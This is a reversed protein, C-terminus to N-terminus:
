KGLVGLRSLMGVLTGLPMVRTGKFSCYAAGVAALLLRKEFSLRMASGVMYGAVGGVALSFPAPLGMPTIFDVADLIMGGMVPNMRASKEGGAQPEDRPPLREAEVEIVEPETENQTPLRYRPDEGRTGTPYSM